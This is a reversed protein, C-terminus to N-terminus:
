NNPLMSNLPVVKVFERVTYLSNRSCPTHVRHYRRFFPNDFINLRKLLGDGVQCEPTMSEVGNPVSGAVVSCSAIRLVRFTLAEFVQRRNM